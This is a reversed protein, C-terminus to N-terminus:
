SNHTTLWDQHAKVDKETVLYVKRWSVIGAHHVVVIHDAVHLPCHLRVRGHVLQYNAGSSWLGRVLLLGNLYVDERHVLAGWLGHIGIVLLAVEWYTM